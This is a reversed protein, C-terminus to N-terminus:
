PSPHPHTPHHLHPHTHLTNTHVRPPYNKSQPPPAWWVTCGSMGVLIDLLRGGVYTSDSITGNQFRYVRDRTMSLCITNTKRTGLFYPSSFNSIVSDTMSRVIRGVCCGHPLSAAPGSPLPQSSRAGRIHHSDVSASFSFLFGVVDLGLTRLRFRSSIHHPKSAPSASCTRLVQSQHRAKARLLTPHSRLERQGRGWPVPEQKTRDWGLHKGRGQLFAQFSTLSLRTGRCM